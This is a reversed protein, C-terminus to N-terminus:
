PTRGIQLIIQTLVNSGIGLRDMIHVISLPLYKTLSYIPFKNLLQKSYKNKYVVLHQSALYSFISETADNNVDVVWIFGGQNLKNKINELVNHQETESFQAMATTLIVLDFSESTQIPQLLDQVFYTISTNKNKCTDICKKDIDCGFISIPEFYEALERTFSGFGCGADLINLTEIPKIADIARFGRVFERKFMLDIYLHAEQTWHYMNRVTM